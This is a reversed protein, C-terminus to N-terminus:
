RSATESVVRSRASTASSSRTKSRGMWTWISGSASSTSITRRRSIRRSSRASSARAAEQLGDPDSKREVNKTEMYGSLVVEQEIRGDQHFIWQFCYDYNGAQHISALVLDRARRSEGGHRWLIGGDREYLAIAGPITRARGREDNVIAPIMKANEPADNMPVFSSNFLTGLGFEGADFWHVMVFNPDGYPVYLESLSARYLVSRVKDGDEWGVTYLIMGIRPDYGIRFRWNQWRVLNGEMTFTAGDPMTTKLPKPAPRTPETLDPNGPMDDPDAHVAKGGGDRVWEVRRKTLNVLVLLDSMEVNDERNGAYSQALVYRSGDPKVDVYGRNPGAGIGVDLPDLGRKKIAAIWRPDARVLRDTIRDEDGNWPGQKSVVKRSEVTKHKLDVIAEVTEYTAQEFFVAKAKREFPDGQKYDLVDQKKPEKLGIYTYIARRTAKKEDKLLKSTLKIEDESLPDLPHKTKDVKPTEPKAAAPQADQAFCTSLLALAFLICALRMLAM